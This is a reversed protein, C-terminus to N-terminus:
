IIDGQMVVTLICYIHQVVPTIYTVIHLSIICIAPRTNHVTLEKQGVLIAFTVTLYDNSM